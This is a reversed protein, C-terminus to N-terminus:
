GAIETVTINSIFREYGDANTTNIVRNTYITDANSVRIGLHYTIASTTSPEDFYTGQLQEATSDVDIAYYNTSAGWMGAAVAGSETNGKILTSDRYLVFVNNYQNDAVGFEGNWMVDIKLISSTSAPTITVTPFATLKTYTDATLAQSAFTTLQGYQMQVIGGAKPYPRGDTGITFATNSNTPDQIESVKLISTM